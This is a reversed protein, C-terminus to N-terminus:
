ANKIKEWSGAGFIEDALRKCTPEMIRSLESPDLTVVSGAGNAEEWRKADSMKADAVPKAYGTPEMEAFSDMIIKQHAPSIREWVRQAIVMKDFGLGFDNLYAYKTVEYYKQTIVLSSLTVQGDVVGQQLASYAENFPIPTPNAGLTKLGEIVGEIQGARLKAGKFGAWSDVKNKTYLGFAGARGVGILHGKYRDAILKNLQPRISGNIVRMAQDYDRCLSALYFIDFERLGTYAGQYVDLTGLATAQLISQEGGLTGAFVTGEVEGGTRQKVTELWNRTFKVGVYDDNAASGVKLSVKAKAPKSLGVQSVIAAAGIAGIGFQRRTVKMSM